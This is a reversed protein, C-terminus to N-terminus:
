NGMTFLNFPSLCHMESPEVGEAINETQQSQPPHSPAEDAERSIGPPPLQQTGAANADWAM